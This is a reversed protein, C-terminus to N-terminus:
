KNNIGTVKIIEEILNEPNKVHIIPFNYKKAEKEIYQNFEVVWEIEKEKVSDPYRKSYDWLGRSFVNGRIRKTDYDVLFIVKVNKNSKAFKYALSPLIAIGEIIFSDWIYDAEKNAEILSKVVKWVDKSEKNQHKVIEKAEYKKFYNIPNAGVYFFLNPYDKKRVLKIMQDRMLDTSMWPLCFRKSLKEAVYSKGVLPAGGILIIKNV